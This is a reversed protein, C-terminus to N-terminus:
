NLVAFAAMVMFLGAVMANLMATSASSGAAVKAGPVATTFQVGTSAGLLRGAGSGSNDTCGGDLTGTYTAVATNSCTAGNYLSMSIAGSASLTTKFSQSSSASGPLRLCEDLIFTMTISPPANLDVSGGTCPSTSIIVKVLKNTPYAKCSYGFAPVAASSGLAGAALGATCAMAITQSAGTCNPSTFITIGPSAGCDPQYSSTPGLFNCQGATMYPLSTKSSDCKDTDYIDFSLVQTTADVALASQQALALAALAMAITKAFM